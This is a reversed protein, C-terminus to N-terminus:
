TEVSFGLAIAPNKPYIHRNKNKLETEVQKM